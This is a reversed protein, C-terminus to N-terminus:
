DNANDNLTGRVVKITIANGDAGTHELRQRGYMEPHRRELIWAAAQWAGDTAEKQIRALLQVAGAGEAEKVADFFEPKTNMWNHFTDHSIGAYSSALAYTAGLKIAQVLKSVTEPTNKTKRGRPSKPESM